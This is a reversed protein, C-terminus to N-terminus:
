LIKEIFTQKLLNVNVLGKEPPYYHGFKEKMLSALDKVNTRDKRNFIKYSFTALKRASNQYERFSEVVKDIGFEKTANTMSILLDRESLTYKRQTEDNNESDNLNSSAKNNNVGREICGIIDFSSNYFSSRNELSQRCMLHSDGQNTSTRRSIYEEPDRESLIILPSKGDHHKKTLKIIYPLLFPYPTDHLSLVINMAKANVILDELEKQARILFSKGNKTFHIKNLASLKALLFYHQGIIDSQFKEDFQISTEAPTTKNFTKPIIYRSPICGLNYHFSTYGLLCTAETFLHTGTTGQGANIIIPAFEISDQEEEGDQQQQSLYEEEIKGQERMETTLIATVKIAALITCALVILLDIRKLNSNLSSIKM